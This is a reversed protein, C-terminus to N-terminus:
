AQQILGTYYGNDEPSASATLLHDRVQTPIAATEFRERIKDPIAAQLNRVDYQSDSPGIVGASATLLRDRLQQPIEATLMHDRVQTPIAATEFRERIKEPIAAQAASALGLTFLTALAANRLTSKM